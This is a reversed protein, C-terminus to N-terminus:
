TEEDDKGERQGSTRRRVGAERGGRRSATRRCGTAAGASAGSGSSTPMRGPEQIMAGYPQVVFKTKWLEV